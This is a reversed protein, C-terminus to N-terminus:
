WAGSGSAHRVHRACLRECRRSRASIEVVHLLPRRGYLARRAADGAASREGAEREALVSQEYDTVADWLRVTYATPRETHRTILRQV